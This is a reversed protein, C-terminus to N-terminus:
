RSGGNNDYSSFQEYADQSIGGNNNGNSGVAINATSLASSGAALTSSGTAGPVSDLGGVQQQHHQYAHQQNHHSNMPHDTNNHHGHHQNHHHHHNHPGTRGYGQGNGGGYHTNSNHHNNHNNYQYPYGGNNQHGGVMPYGAGNNYYGYHNSRAANEASRDKGWSLKAPRGNIMTGALRVIANAAKEHTELKVFAFGRDAQLRMDVVMGFPQFFPVLDEQTTHPPLNGVYVTTNFPPTQSVVMKFSNGTHHHMGPHHHFTPGPMGRQSAWNCRIARNGLAQGNMSMIAREADSREKYAAFGYGRSKGSNSDWMVRADTMSGFASFANSLTEDNIEPSLDGIFIHYHSATDEKGAAQGTFAWNVKIEQLCVRRGNMTQLAMEAAAHDAFEVFGYNLGGQHAFNKDRIIKVNEVLGGTQSFIEQLYAENVTQDLNGVYLTKSNEDPQFAPTASTVAAADSSNSALTASQPSVSAAPSGQQQQAAYQDM